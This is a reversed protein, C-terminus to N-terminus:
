KTEENFFRARLKAEHRQRSQLRLEELRVIEERIFIIRERIAIADQPTPITHTAAYAEETSAQSAEEVAELLRRGYVAEEQSAQKRLQRVEMKHIFGSAVWCMERCLVILGTKLNTWVAHALSQKSANHTNSM